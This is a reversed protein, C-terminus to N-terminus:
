EAQYETNVVEAEEPDVTISTPDPTAYGTAAHYTITYDDPTVDELTDESDNWNAGADVSWQAGALVAGEPTINVTITGDKPVYEVTRTDAEGQLLTVLVPDPTNYHEVTDFTVTYEEDYNLGTVTAGSANWNEGADLSWTGSSPVLTVTMSQGAVPYGAKCEYFGEGSVNTLVSAFNHIFLGTQLLIAGECYSNTFKFDITGENSMQFEFTPTGWRSYGTIISSLTSQTPYELEGNSEIYFTGNVASNLDLDIDSNYSNFNTIPCTIFHLASCLSTVNTLL